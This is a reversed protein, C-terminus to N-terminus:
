KLWTNQLPPYTRDRAGRQEFDRNIVACEFTKALYEISGVFGCSCLSRQAQLGDLLARTHIPGHSKLAAIERYRRANCILALALRV